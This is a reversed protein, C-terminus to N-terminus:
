YTKGECMSQLLPNIEEILLREGQVGLHLSVDLFYERPIANWM